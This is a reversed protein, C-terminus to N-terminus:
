KINRYFDLAEIIIEKELKCDIQYSGFDRVLSFNIQGNINKKDHTMLNILEQYDSKEIKFYDYNKIIYNNILNIKEQSLNLIKGCLYLEAIIGMAIARGHLLPDKTTFSFSEIAHGITHGFNLMKRINKETPDKEAFENKIMVSTEVISYLLSFDPNDFDFKSIQEFYEGKYIIAHKVAEAMGSLLQEKPLTQLMESCILVQNPIRFIGIENKLSNFDVALKGGCSADVQALLTTPINIFDIGRKFLSASLGGMDGIVGGGINIFLSKRDAGNDALFQWIKQCTDLNKYEEGSHIEITYFGKPLQSELKPLCFKKTNEDVLVFTKRNEGLTQLHNIENAKHYLKVNEPLHM